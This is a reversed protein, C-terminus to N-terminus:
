QFTGDSGGRGVRVTLTVAGIRVRDGDGARVSTGEDITREGEETLLVSGNTSGLDEVTLDAGDFAVLLHSKSVTTADGPVVEARAAGAPSPDRGLVVTEGAAVVLTATDFQLAAVTELTPRGVGVPDPARETATPTRRAVTRGELDDPAGVAVAPASVAVAPPEPDPADPTPSTDGRLAAVIAEAPAGGLLPPLLVTCGRPGDHIAVEGADTQRVLLFLLGLGGLWVTAACAVLAWRPRRTRAVGIRGPALLSVALEPHGRLAELVLEAVADASWGPAPLSRYRTEDAAPRARAM